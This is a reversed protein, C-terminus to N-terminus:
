FNVSVLFNVRWRDPIAGPAPNLQRAFEGSLDIPGLWGTPRALSSRLGAGISSGISTRQEVATPMLSAAEGRAAFVYCQEAGIRASRPWELFRQLEGRVSWGRDGSFSAMDYGSLDTPGGMTFKESVLLPSNASQGQVRLDVAAKAPLQQHLVGHWELKWFAASAGLQSLPPAQTADMPERTGLGHFGKSLEVGFSAQMASTFVRAASLGVRLVRLQDDYLRTGFQPADEVESTAEVSAEALLSGVRSKIIPYTDRLSVREFTSQTSLVDPTPRPATTAWTLEADILDGSLGIPARVGGALLRRPDHASIPDFDVPASFTLYEQEGEGSDSTYATSLTASIRGLVEPLSDDGSLQSTEGRYDGSLVLIVAGEAPGPRLMARLSLGPVEGLILLTREFQARTLSTRGVLPAFSAEVRHRFGQPIGDVDVWQIFGRIVRLRLEGGVPVHQPPIVIRTLFHGRIVYAQEVEAAAAYIAAIQIPHGRLPSLIPDAVRALEPDAGEVTFRGVTVQLHVVDTPATPEPYTVSPAPASEPPSFSKPALQGPSPVNTQAFSASAGLSGLLWAVVRCGARLM